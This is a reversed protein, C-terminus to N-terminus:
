YGPCLFDELQGLKGLKGTIEKIILIYIGTSISFRRMHGFQRYICHTDQNYAFQMKRRPLLNVLGFFNQPSYVSFNLFEAQVIGLM